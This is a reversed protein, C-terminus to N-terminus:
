VGGSMASPLVLASPRMQRHAVGRAVDEADIWGSQDALREERRHPADARDDSVAGVLSVPDGRGDRKIKANSQGTLLTRHMMVESASVVDRQNMRMEPGSGSVAGLSLPRGLQFMPEPTDSAFDLRAANEIRQCGGRHAASGATFESLM